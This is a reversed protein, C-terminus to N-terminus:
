EILKGKEMDFQQYEVPLKFRKRLDRIYAEAHRDREPEGVVVLKEARRAGPWYSYELLQGLAQRICSQANAGVKIEYYVRREGKKVVIDIKTGNGTPCEDRVCKKGHKDELYAGLADQIDNHRLDKDLVRAATSMTTRSRKKTRGPVWEDSPAAAPTVTGGEAFEYMPLLRDFDRLILEISVCAPDQRRGIFIFRGLEVIEPEVPRLSYDGSWNDSGDMQNYM